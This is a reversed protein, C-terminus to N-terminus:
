RAQGGSAGQGLQAVGRVPCRAGVSGDARQQTFLARAKDCRAQRDQGSRGHADTDVTLAVVMCECGLEKLQWYLVYGCPGAEYCVKLQEFAGVKKLAKKIAGPENPIMGLARVEGGDGDAVAIAISEAHVDLGVYKTYKSM